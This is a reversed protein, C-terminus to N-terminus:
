SYIRYRLTEINSNGMMAHFSINSKYFDYESISSAPTNSSQHFDEVVLPDHISLDTSPLFEDQHVLLFFDANASTVESLSKTVHTAFARTGEIRYSKHLSDNLQCPTIHKIFYHHIVRLTLM